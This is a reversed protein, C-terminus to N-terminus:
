TTIERLKRYGNRSMIRCFIRWLSLCTWGLILSVNHPYQIQHRKDNWKQQHQQPEAESAAQVYHRVFPFALESSKAVKRPYDFYFISDANRLEPNLSVRKEPKNGPRTELDWTLRNRMGNKDTKLDGFEVEIPVFHDIRFLPTLWHWTLWNPQSSAQAVLCKRLSIYTYRSMQAFLCKRLSVNACRSMQWKQVSVNM